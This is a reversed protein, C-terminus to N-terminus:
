SKKRTLAIKVGTDRIKWEREYAEEPLKLQKPPGIQFDRARVETKIYEKMEELAKMTEEKQVEVFLSVFEEVRLGMEKRMLQARRVVEKALSEVLLEKTRTIDLYIKASSSEVFMLHAPVEEKFILTDPMLCVSAGNGLELRYKGDKLLSKQVLQGEVENLRKSIEPTKEKFQPGAKAYDLGVVIKVDEPVEGIKLVKLDKSNAQDLIVDRFTKVARQTEKNKPVIIVSQIPWRLKLQAKQRVHSIASLLDKVSEMQSEMDKVVLDAELKPWECMHLSEPAKSDIKRVFNQYLEETVYPAFPALLRLLISLTEYLTAYAALKDPDEKEVWTRRRVLRIYLRSLDQTIFDLIVRVPQHLHLNEFNSSVERVLSQVKSLMWRDEPRLHRRLREHAWRSPDFKDLDMYTSAFSFVNWLISLWRAIQDAEDYDFALSDWPTSKWLLYLRLPDAGIKDMADLGWVVNGKSKSMKQGHKDLLLGQCLVSKYSSRDFLAVGTFILSYFWGRTQDVAETIFDYPYLRKFLRKNKLYGLPATHAVGSDLWCDLVYETRRMDGGCRPCRLVIEDIWPRHLKVQKLPSKALSKLEKITGVVQRSGCNQCLWVNLPSGWIRSRSICWDEANLLWDEFRSSGAWEPVWNIRRNERLIEDKIPAVKLFWQKDARYILPTDCRWCFAYEHTIIGIKLLLGKQKLDELIIPDAEKVYKGAYKGGEDTFHGYIDVPCFVPLGYKRGIEFDEPGHAPATHVCGTGEELTVHEGCVIAHDFRGKHDKHQPVEEMLPHLYRLGELDKGKVTEIVECKDLGLESAVNKLLESALIWHEKGVQVKVYDYKPNVSVAEDGPLTWPTTTWIVIFENRRDEMPFKVYLSPDKTTTYGQAVEHSSVPTGCRPCVPVVKFDEVLLGREDAKKLTWWVFEIYSEHRTQYANDYDLWLGLKESAKRWHDIYFDVLQNCQAVFNRLGVREEIEKKSNLGLKKEVELEVPLGQTDWGAQRWVNYGQMTKFRLVADKMTRGRAHGVHMFGNATPPGELFKFLPKRSRMEAVKQPIKKRKWFSAVRAELEVPKYTGSAKKM